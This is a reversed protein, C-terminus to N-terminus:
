NAGHGCGHECYYGELPGNGGCRGRTPRDQSRDPCEDCRGESCQLSIVSGDANRVLGEYAPEDENAEDPDIDYGLETFWECLVSVADGGPWSGDHQEISKIRRFLNDVAAADRRRTQKTPDAKPSSSAEDRETRAKVLTAEYRLGNNIREQARSAEELTAFRIHVDWHDAM